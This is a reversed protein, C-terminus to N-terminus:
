PVVDTAVVEDGAVSVSHERLSTAAIEADVVYDGPSLDFLLALGDAATAAATRSPLGNADRYVIRDASPTTTVTAGEIPVGDCDLVRVTIVGNGPTHVAGFLQLLNLAQDNLLLGPIDTVDAFTATAPVLKTALFTSETVRVYADLPRGGTAVPIAFTGTMDTPTPGALVADDATAHVAVSATTVPTSGGLGLTFTNGSFTVTDPASGPLPQGLCGINAGIPPTDVGAADIQADVQDQSSDGCGLFLVFGAVFARRM